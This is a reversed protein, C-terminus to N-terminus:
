EYQPDPKDPTTMSRISIRQAGLFPESYGASALTCDLVHIPDIFV